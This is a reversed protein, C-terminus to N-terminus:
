AVPNLTISFIKYSNIERGYYFKDLIDYINKGRFYSTHLENEGLEIWQLTYSNENKYHEFLYEKMKSLAETKTIAKIKHLLFSQEHIPNITVLELTVTETGDKYNFLLNEQPLGLFQTIEGQLRAVEINEQSINSMM